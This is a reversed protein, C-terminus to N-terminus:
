GRRKRRRSTQWAALGLLVVGFTPLMLMPPTLSCSVVQGLSNYCVPPSTEAVSEVGFLGFVLVAAVAAAAVDLLSLVVVPRTGERSHEDVTKV